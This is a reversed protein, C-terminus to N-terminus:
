ESPYANGKINIFVVQKSQLGVAGLERLLILLFIIISVVNAEVYFWTYDM